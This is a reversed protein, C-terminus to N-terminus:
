HQLYLLDFQLVGIYASHALQCLARGGPPAVPLLEQPRHGKPLPLCVVMRHCTLVGRIIIKQFWCQCAAPMIDILVAPSHMHVMCFCFLRCQAVHAARLAGQSSCRGTMVWSMVHGREATCAQQHQVRMSLARHLGKPPHEVARRPRREHLSALHLVAEDHVVEQDMGVVGCCLAAICLSCELM